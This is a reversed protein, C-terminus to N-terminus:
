RSRRVSRDSYGYGVDILSGDHDRMVVSLRREGGEISMVTIGFAEIPRRTILLTEVVQTAPSPMGPFTLIRSIRGYGDRNELRMTERPAGKPYDALVLEFAAGRVKKPYAFDGREIWCRASRVRKLGMLHGDGNVDRVFQVGSGDDLLAQSVLPDIQVIRRASMFSGKAFSIKAAPGAFIGSGRYVDWLPASKIEVPVTMERCDPAVSTQAKAATALVVVSLFCLTQARM